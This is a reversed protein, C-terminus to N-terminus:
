LFEPGHTSITAVCTLNKSLLGKKTRIIAPHGRLSYGYNRLPDTGIGMEDIVFLETHPDM